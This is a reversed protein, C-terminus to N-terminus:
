KRNSAGSVLIEHSIEIKFISTGKGWPIAFDLLHKILRLQILSDQYEPSTSYLCPSLESYARWGPITQEARTRHIATPICSDSAKGWTTLTSLSCLWLVRVVGVCLSCVTCGKDLPTPLHVSLGFALIILLRNIACIQILGYGHKNRYVTYNHWPLSCHAWM